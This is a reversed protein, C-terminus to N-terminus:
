QEPSPASACTPLPQPTEEQSTEWLRRSTTRPVRTQTCPKPRLSGSTGKCSLYEMIRHNVSTVQGNETGTQLILKPFYMIEKLNGLPPSSWSLLNISTKDSVDSIVQKLLFSFYYKTCRYTSIDFHQISKDGDEDLDSWGWCLHKAVSGSWDWVWKLTESGREM